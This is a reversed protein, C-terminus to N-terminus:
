SSNYFSSIDYILLAFGKRKYPSMETPSAIFKFVLLAVKAIDLNSPVTSVVHFRIIFAASRHMYLVALYTM